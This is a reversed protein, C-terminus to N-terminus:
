FEVELRAKSIINRPIQWPRGEADVIHVIGETFSKLEGVFHRRGQVPEFTHIVLLKGKFRVFDEDTRLPRDLGPSSVELTYRGPITDAVDLEAGLQRSAAQCDELTVGGPKDIFYRLFWGGRQRGLEVNVMELGMGDLVRVGLQSVKAMIENKNM